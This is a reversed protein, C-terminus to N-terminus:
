RYVIDDLYFTGGSPGVDQARIVVSFASVVNSLANKGAPLALRFEKWDGTLTVFDGEVSFSAQGGKTNGGAKFQVKPFLGSADAVGRAWVSAQLFGRGRLDKGPASGWNNAPTQWAIAAWGDPGPKYTVKYCSPMSHPRERSAPDLLLGGKREGDGMFGSPVFGADSIDLPTVNEGQHADGASNTSAGQGRQVFPTPQAGATKGTLRAGNAVAALAVCVVLLKMECMTTLGGAKAIGSPSSSGGIDEREVLAGVMQIEGRLLHEDVRQAIEVARHQERHSQRWGVAGRV